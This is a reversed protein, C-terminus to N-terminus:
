PCFLVTPNNTHLDIEPYAKSFAEKNFPNAIVHIGSKTPIEALIKYNSAKKHEGMTLYALNIYQVIKDKKDLDEKDLDILWRRDIEQHYEGCISDYAKRVNYFDKNMMQDSVKQLLKFAAKEFNRPNLNICVRANFLIALKKMEEYYEELQKVSTIYYTKIVRSNSMNLEPNDKSRQLITTFYFVDKHPFELLPLILNKNDVM